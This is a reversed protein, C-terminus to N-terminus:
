STRTFHEEPVRFVGKIVAQNRVCIQVHTKRRFGAGPYIEKGEVFVGRVTDFPPLDNNTRRAAHLYNLVECDLYRRLRDEGGENESITKGLQNM